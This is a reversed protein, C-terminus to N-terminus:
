MSINIPISSSFSFSQSRSHSYEKVVKFHVSCKARTEYTCKFTGIYCHGKASRVFVLIIGGVSTFVKSIARYKPNLRSHTVSLTVLRGSKGFGTM